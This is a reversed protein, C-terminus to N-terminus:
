GFLPSPTSSCVVVCINIQPDAFSGDYAPTADKCQTVCKLTTNYGYYGTPCVAVCLMKNMDAFNHVDSPCKNVCKKTKNDAVYQVGGVISCDTPIVCEHKTDDAYYGSPCDFPTTKCTKSLADGWLASQNSNGCNSVCLNDEDRAYQGTPCETLCVGHSPFTSGWSTWTATFNVGYTM